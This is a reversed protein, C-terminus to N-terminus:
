KEGPKERWPPKGEKELFNNKPPLSWYGKKSVIPSVNGTAKGV